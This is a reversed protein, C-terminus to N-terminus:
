NGVVHEVAHAIFGFDDDAPSLLKYHVIAKRLRDIIEDLSKTHVIQMDRDSDSFADEHVDLPMKRQHELRPHRENSKNM